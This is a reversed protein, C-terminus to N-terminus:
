QVRGVINIEATVYPFLEETVFAPIGAPTDDGNGLVGEAILDQFLAHLVKRVKEQSRKEVPFIMCDFEAPLSFRVVSETWVRITKLHVWCSFIESFQNKCFKLLDLRVAARKDVLQAISKEKTEGSGKQFSFERPTFRLERLRSKVPDVFRKLVVMTVLVSDADEAVKVSSKPMVVRAGFAGSEGMIQKLDEV